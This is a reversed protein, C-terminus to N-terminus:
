RGSTQVAISMRNDSVQSPSETQPVSKQRVEKSATHKEKPTFYTFTVGLEPAEFTKIVHVDSIEVLDLQAHGSLVEPDSVVANVIANTKEGRIYITYPFTRTGMTFTYHGAPLTAGGWYTEFPLTFKGEFANQANGASALIGLALAAFALKYVVKRYRASSMDFRRTIELITGGYYQASAEELNISALSHEQQRSEEIRITSSPFASTTASV